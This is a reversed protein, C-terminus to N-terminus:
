VTRGGWAGNASRSGSASPRASGAPLGSSAGTVMAPQNDRGKAKDAEREAAAVAQAEPHGSKRMEAINRSITTESSGKELPM